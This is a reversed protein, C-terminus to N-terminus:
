TENKLGLIKTVKVTALTRAGTVLEGILGIKLRERHIKLYEKERSIIWMTAKGSKPLVNLNRIVNGNQDIFEPWIMWIGEDNFEESYKFDSRMHQIPGKLESVWLYEIEFDPQKGREGSYSKM